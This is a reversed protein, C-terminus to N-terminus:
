TLTPATNVLCTATLKTGSQGTSGDWAEAKLTVLGVFGPKTPLFRIRDSGSLLKPKTSSVTGIATWTAGKDTSFQWTGDATGTLATVAIGTATGAFYPGFVSAVTDGIPKNPFPLVPTLAASSGFWAPGAKAGKVTLTAIAATTSFASAGGTSTIAFLSGSTGATQDWARYTLTAPGTQNVAPVFRVLATSPLLLASSV